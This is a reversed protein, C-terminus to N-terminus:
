ARSRIAATISWRCASAKSGGRSRRASAAWASWASPATACADGQEASVAGGDMQRRAPFARGASVRAGHVAASRARHRRGGRQAGGAHQHRHHRARRCIQRRHQRLRRRLEVRIRAQPLRAMVAATMRSPRAPSRSRACTAARAERHLSSIRPTRRRMHLNFPRQACRRDPKKPVRDAGRRGKRWGDDESRM